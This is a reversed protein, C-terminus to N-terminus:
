GGLPISFGIKLRNGTSLVESPQVTPLLVEEWDDTGRIVGIITGALFGVGASLAAIAAAEAVASGEKSDYVTSGAVVGVVAGAGLGLLSAKWWKREGQSVELRTLTGVPCEVDENDVTASFRGSELSILIATKEQLQCEPATVRIRSGPKAVPTDQAGVPQLCFGCLAAALFPVLRKM